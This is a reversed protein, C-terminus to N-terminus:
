GNIFFILILVFMRNRQLFVNAMSIFVCVCVCVCRRNNLFFFFSTFGCKLSVVGFKQGVIKFKGM